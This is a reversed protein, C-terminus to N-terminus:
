KSIKKTIFKGDYSVKLIYNGKPYDELNAIKNNELIGSGVEKGNQDYIIFSVMNPVGEITIQDQFPNPYISVVNKLANTIDLTSIMRGLHYVPTSLNQDFDGGIYLESSYLLVSNVPKNLSGIPQIWGNIMDYRCLNNGYYMWGINFDGGLILNPEGMELELDNIVVRDNGTGAGFDYPYIEPQVVGNYYRSLCPDSSTEATGGLYIKDGVYKACKVTDPTPGTIATWIYQNNIIAANNCNQSPQPIANEFPTISSFHGGLIRSSGLSELDYVTGSVEARKTWVGAEFTWIEQATPNSSHNIAICIESTAFGTSASAGDRGPIDIYNWGVGDFKALPYTQEGNSISGFAYITDANRGVANIQGSVGNGFCSFQDDKYKGINLCNMGHLETFEGFVIMSGDYLNYYTGNVPGNTGGGVTEMNNPTPYSPQIWKLEDLTFGHENAWENVGETKIDRIYDYNHANVIRSVLEDNGSRHMMYGVACHVGFDDVFYPRREQHYLNTPFVGEDAYLELENILSIRNQFQEASLGEPFHIRLEQCVLKLHLAIRERDSGFSITGEPCADKHFQWEKNIEFLHNYYSNDENSDQGFLCISSFILAVSLGFRKM